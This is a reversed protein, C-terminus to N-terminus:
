TILRQKRVASLQNQFTKYAMVFEADRGRGFWIIQDQSMEDIVQETDYRRATQKVDQRLVNWLKDSRAIPYDDLLAGIIVKIPNTEVNPEIPNSTQNVSRNFPLPEPSVIQNPYGFREPQKLCEYGFHEALKRIDFRLQEPKIEIPQIGLQKVPADVFLLMLDDFLPIKEGSALAQEQKQKILKASALQDAVAGVSGCAVFPKSPVASQYLLKSFTSNPLGAFQERCDIIVKIREPEQILFRSLAINKGQCLLSKTQEETLSVTGQYDFLGLLANTKSIFGFNKDEIWACLAFEQREIANLLDGESLYCVTQLEVIRYYNRILM